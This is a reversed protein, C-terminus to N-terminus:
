EEGANRWNDLYVRENVYGKILVYTVLVMLHYIFMVVFYRILRVCINGFVFYWAMHM